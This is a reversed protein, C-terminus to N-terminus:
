LDSVFYSIPSHHMIFKILRLLAPNTSKSTESSLIVNSREFNFGIIELAGM